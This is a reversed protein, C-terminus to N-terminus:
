QHECNWVMDSLEYSKAQYSYHWWETRIAKFGFEEMTSKLLKRNELVTKPLNTYDHYAEKGFFDFSTGMDLEKGNADVITLDVASGRNHMSGKRPDAVYRADPVKEWLAWQVPRPRYCDFMKLGYGKSQLAQSNQCIAQAVAPRLFCRGCEYMQSKVFNDTTAYKLDMVISPAVDAVDLWQLTDYDFVKVVPATMKEEVQAVSATELASTTLIHERNIPNSRCNTLLLLTLIFWYNRM